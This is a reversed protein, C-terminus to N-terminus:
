GRSAAFVLHEFGAFTTTKEVTMGLKRAVGQSPENVPRILSIVRADGRTHFAYDRIALAAETALGRRWHSRHVMYGIEREDAGDIVQRVLGAQGVPEGTAREVLLWLGHGDQRYRGIQRDIWQAAEARSLVKPYFRMVEADGLMGAVIDLDDQTM